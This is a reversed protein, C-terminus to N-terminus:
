RNWSQGLRTGDSNFATPTNGGDWITIQSSYINQYKARMQTQSNAIETKLPREKELNAHSNIRMKNPQIAQNGKSNSEERRNRLFTPLVLSSQDGLCENELRHPCVFTWYVECFAGVFRNKACTPIAVIVNGHMAIRSSGPACSRTLNLPFTSLWAYLTSSNTHDLTFCSGSVQSVAHPFKHAKVIWEYCRVYRISPGYPTLTVWLAANSRWHMNIFCQSALSPIYLHCLSYCSKFQRMGRAQLDKILGEVGETYVDFNLEALMLWYKFNLLFLRAALQLFCPRAVVFQKVSDGETWTSVFATFAINRSSRPEEWCVSLCLSTYLDSNHTVLSPRFIHTPALGLRAYYLAIQLRLTGMLFGM